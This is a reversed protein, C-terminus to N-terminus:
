SGLCSSFALSIGLVSKSSARPVCNNSFVAFSEIGDGHPRILSHGGEEWRWGDDYFTTVRFIDSCSVLRWGDSLTGVQRSQKCCDGDM